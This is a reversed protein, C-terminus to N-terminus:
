LTCILLPGLFVLACSLWTFQSPLIFVLILGAVSSAVSCSFVVVARRKSPENRQLMGRARLVWLAVTAALFGLMVIWDLM